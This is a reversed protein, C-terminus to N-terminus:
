NKNELLNSMDYLGPTQHVLFEAAKLAGNAFIDRSLATHKLEIIEDFGAFLVTHEGPITGGRVAHIGLENIPTENENGSRGYIYDKKQELAENIGDALLLATGSPADKKQNHHKEIIEINFDAELSPSIAQLAKVLVNIGLSMNASYFVPVKQSADVVLTQEQKELGTTAVVVPINKEVAYDLLTPVVSYHSFDIIADVDEKVEAFTAYIPFDGNGTTVRDVGAVVTLDTSKEIMTQLVQGMRGNAGSLLVKKM